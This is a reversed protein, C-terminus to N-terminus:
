PTRGAGKKKFKKTSTQDCMRKSIYFGFFFKKKLKQFIVGVMNRNFIWFKNFFEFKWFRSLVSIKKKLSADKLFLIYTLVKRLSWLLLFGKFIPNEPSFWMKQLFHSKWRFIGNQPNEITIIVVFSKLTYKTKSLRM